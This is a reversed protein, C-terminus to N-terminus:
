AQSEIKQTVKEKQVDVAKLLRKLEVAEPDLDSLGEALARCDVTIFLPKGSVALNAGAETQAEKLLREFEVCEAEVMKLDERGKSSEELQTKVAAEM